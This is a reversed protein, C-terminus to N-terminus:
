VIINVVFYAHASKAGLGKSLIVVGAIVVCVWPVVLMLGASQSQSSLDSMVQISTVTTTDVYTYAVHPPSYSGNKM